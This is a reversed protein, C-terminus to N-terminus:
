GRVADVGYLVLEESGDSLVQRGLIHGEGVDMVEFQGPLTHTHTSGNGRRHMLVTVSEGPASM